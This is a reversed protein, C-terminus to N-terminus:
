SKVDKTKTTNDPLSEFPVVPDIAAWCRESIWMDADLKAICEACVKVKKWPVDTAIPECDIPYLKVGSTGCGQCNM